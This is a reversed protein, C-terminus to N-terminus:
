KKQEEFMHLIDQESLPKTTNKHGNQNQKRNPQQSARNRIPYARRCIGGIVVTGDRDIKEAETPITLDVQVSTKPIYEDKEEDYRFRRTVEEVGVYRKMLDDKIHKEDMTVSVDCVIFSYKVEESM